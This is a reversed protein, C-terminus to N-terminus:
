TEHIGLEESMDTGQIGKNALVETGQYTGQVSHLSVFAPMIYDLQAKSVM